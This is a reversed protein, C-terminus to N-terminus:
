DDDPIITCVKNREEIMAFDEVYEDIVLKGQLKSRKASCDLRESLSENQYPVKYKQSKREVMPMYITDFSKIARMKMVVGNNTFIYMMTLILIIFTFYLFSTRILM